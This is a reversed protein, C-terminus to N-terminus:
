SVVKYRLRAGLQWGRAETVICFPTDRCLGGALGRARTSDATDHSGKATDHGTDHGLRDYLPRCHAGM